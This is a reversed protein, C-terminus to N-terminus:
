TKICSFNIMKRKCIFFKIFSITLLWGTADPQKYIFIFTPPIRLYFNHLQLSCHFSFVVTSMVCLCTSGFTSMFCHCTSGLTPMVCHCASGLMSMVCHCISGHTSIVCFCTDIATSDIHKCCWLVLFSLCFCAPIPFLSSDVLFFVQAEQQSNLM